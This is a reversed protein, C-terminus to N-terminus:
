FSSWDWDVPISQRDTMADKHDTDKHENNTNDKGNTGFNHDRTTHDLVYEEYKQFCKHCVKCLYKKDNIIYSKKRSNRLNTKSGDSDEDILHPNTNPEFTNESDQDEEWNSGFLTFQANDDLYIYNKLCDGCFIEGCSRCHHKRRTETIYNFLKGCQACNFRSGDPKWHKRTPGEIYKGPTRGTLYNWYEAISSATSRVSASSTSKSLNPRESPMSHVDFGSEIVSSQSPTNKMVRLVAPTYLPRQQDNIQKLYPNSPDRFPSENRKPPSFVPQTNSNYNQQQQRNNINNIENNSNYLHNNMQNINIGNTNKNLSVSKNMLFIGSSSKTLGPSSILPKNIHKDNFHQQQQQQQRESSTESFSSTQTSPRSLSPPIKHTFPTTTRPSMPSMSKAFEKSQKEPLQNLKRFQEMKKQELKQEYIQRQIHELNNVAQPQQLQLIDKESQNDSQSQNPIIRDNINLKQKVQENQKEQGQLNNNQTFSMQSFSKEIPTHDTLTDRKIATNQAISEVITNENNNIMKAESSTSSTKSLQRTEENSNSLHVIDNTESARVTEETSITNNSGETKDTDTSLETSQSQVANLPENISNSIKIETASPVIQDGIDNHINVHSIEIKSSDQKQPKLDILNNSALIVASNNILSNNTCLASDYPPIMDEEYVCSNLQNNTIYQNNNNNNNNNNDTNDNGNITKSNAKPNIDNKDENDFKADDANDNNDIDKDNKCGNSNVKNNTHELENNNELLTHKDTDSNSVGAYAATYNNSDM